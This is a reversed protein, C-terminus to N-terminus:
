KLIRSSVVPNQPPNGSIQVDSGLSMQDRRLQRLNRLYMRADLLGTSPMGPVMRNIVQHPIGSDDKM